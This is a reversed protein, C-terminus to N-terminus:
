FKIRPVSIGVALHIAIPLPEDAFDAFDTTEEEEGAGLFGESIQM